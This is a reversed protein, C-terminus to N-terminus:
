QRMYILMIGVDMDDNRLSVSTSEPSDNACEEDM